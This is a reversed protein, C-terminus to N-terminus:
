DNLRDLVRALVSQKGNERYDELLWNVGIRTIENQSTKIGTSQYTYVIGALGKKEELTFRYTADEKGLQRVAKRIAEVRARDSPVAPRTTDRHRPTMAGTVPPKVVEQSAQKADHRTTDPTTGKGVPRPTDHNSVFFASGSLESQMASENLKKTM